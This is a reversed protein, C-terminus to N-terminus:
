KKKEEKRKEEAWELLLRRGLQVYMCAHALVCRPSPTMNISLGIFEPFKYSITCQNMGPIASGTILQLQPCKEALVANPKLLPGPIKKPGANRESLM